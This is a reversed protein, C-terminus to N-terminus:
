EVTPPLVLWEFFTAPYGQCVQFVRGSEGDSLRYVMIDRGDQLYRGCGWDWTGSTEVYMLYRSDPSWYLPTLIQSGRLLTRQVKGMADALVFTDEPTRFTMWKGDPSRQGDTRGEVTALRSEPNQVNLQAAVTGSLQTKRLEPREGFVIFELRDRDRRGITLHKAKQLGVLEQLM